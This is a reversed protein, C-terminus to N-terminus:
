LSGSASLASILTRSRKAKAASRIASLQTLVFLPNPAIAKVSKIVDTYSTEGTRNSAAEVM